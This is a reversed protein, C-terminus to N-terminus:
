RESKRSKVKEKSNGRENEIVAIEKEIGKEIKVGTNGVKCQKLMRVKRESYEEMVKEEVHEVWEKNVHTKELKRERPKM